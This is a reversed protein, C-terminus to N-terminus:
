EPKVHRQLWEITAATNGEHGGDFVSIRANGVTRRLLIDKAWVKDHTVDEPRPKALRGGRKSLQIMEDRSIPAVGNAKAIENFAFLSHWVPVSGTHGDNIGTAIDIPTDKAAALWPLPSRAAYEADIAASDGPAGGCSKELMLAYKKGSHMKHWEALHTPGAWASCAAWIEPHRGAMLMTMHGGGSIGTLYIRREDIPYNEKAWAVADLIDGQAKLSGCADPHQNPGRFNPFLYIWGLREAEKELPTNRYELDRSWSHLAVLLPRPKNREAADTSEMATPLIIYSPQKTGDVSSTIMVKTREASKAITALLFLVVTATIINRPLGNM